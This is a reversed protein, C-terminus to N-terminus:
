RCFVFHVDTTNQSRFYELHEYAIFLSLMTLSILSTFNWHLTQPRLKQLDNTCTEHIDVYCAQLRTYYPSFVVGYGECNNTVHSM